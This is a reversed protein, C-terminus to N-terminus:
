KEGKLVKFWEWEDCPLAAKREFGSEIYWGFAHLGDNEEAFWKCNFGAPASLLKLEKHLGGDWMVRSMDFDTAGVVVVDVWKNKSIGFQTLCRKGDKSNWGLLYTHNWDIKM